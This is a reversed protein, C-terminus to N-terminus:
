VPGGIARAPETRWSNVDGWMADEDLSFGTPHRLVGDDLHALLPPMSRGYRLGGALPVTGSTVRPADVLQAPPWRTTTSRAHGPKGGASIIEVHSVTSPRKHVTM